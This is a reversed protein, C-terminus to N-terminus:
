DRSPHRRALPARPSRQPTHAQGARVPDRDRRGSRGDEQQGNAGYFEALVREVDRLGLARSLRLLVKPSPTSLGREVRSLYAPDKGIIRALERLGLGQDLRARRLRTPAEPITL